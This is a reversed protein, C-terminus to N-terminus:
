CPKNYNKCEGSTINQLEAKRLKLDKESKELIAKHYNLAKENSSSGGKAEDYIKEQEEVQNELDDIENKIKKIKKECETKTNQCAEIQEKNNGSQVAPIIEPQPESIIEEPQAEEQIVEQAKAESDIKQQEGLEKQKINDALNLIAERPALKMMLNRTPSIKMGLVPFTVAGIVLAV